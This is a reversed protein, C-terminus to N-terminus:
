PAMAKKTKQKHRYRRYYERYAQESSRKSGDKQRSARALAIRLPDEWAQRIKENRRAIQEPTM